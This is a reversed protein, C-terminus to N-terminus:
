RATRLTGAAPTPELAGGSRLDGAFRGGARGLATGITQRLLAVRWTSAQPTVRNQKLRWTVESEAQWGRQRELGALSGGGMVRHTPRIASVDGPQIRAQGTTTSANM